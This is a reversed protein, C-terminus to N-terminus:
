YHTCLMYRGNKRRKYNLNRKENNKQLSFINTEVITQSNQIDDLKPTKLEIKYVVLVLIFVRIIININYM